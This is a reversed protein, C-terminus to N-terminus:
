REISKTASSKLLDHRRLFSTFDAYLMEAGYSSLHDKDKYLSRGNRVSSCFKEKSPCLISFGDFVFVNDNGSNLGSIFENTSKM